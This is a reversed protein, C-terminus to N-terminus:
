NGNEDGVNVTRFDECAKRYWINRAIVCGRLWVREVFRQDAHERMCQALEDLGDSSEYQWHICQDCTRQHDINSSKEKRSKHM